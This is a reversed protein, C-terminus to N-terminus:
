FAVPPDKVDTISPESAREQDEVHQPEESGDARVCRSTKEVHQEDLRDARHERTHNVTTLCGLASVNQRRQRYEQFEEYSILTM